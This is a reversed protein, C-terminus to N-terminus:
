NGESMIWEIQEEPAFWRKPFVGLYNNHKLNSIPYVIVHAEKERWVQVPRILYSKDKTINENDTFVARAQM